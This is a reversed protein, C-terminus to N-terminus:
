INTDKNELPTQWLFESEGLEQSVWRSYVFLFDSLRNVYALVLYDQDDQLGWRVILRELRRCVTRAVHAFANLNGGGPLTFSQLPKLSENMKDIQNELFTTRKDTLKKESAYNSIMKKVADKEVSTKRGTALVSGLDFLDNQIIKFVEESFSAVKPTKIAFTRIVGINANLEDMTGYCEVQIDAKSVKMGGILHTFGKDGARTYIKDLNFGM